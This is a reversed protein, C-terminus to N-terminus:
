FRYGLLIYYRKTTANLATYKSMGNGLEYRIELSIKNYKAGLGFIWGQEYKRTDDIALGEETMETTYFKSEIKKYNTETIAFGNSMGGNVYLFLKGIPYKFRILTNLKLNSYGIETSTIEYYDENRYDEYRGSVKYSTFLLENNISWKGQNRPLVINFFIGGSFNTSQNYNANVLFPFVDSKFKLSTNSVGAIVGIEIKTKERKRQFDVESQTSSYYNQFVKILSKQNYSTNQLDSKVSQDNDFYLRLQAKYKMNETIVRKGDVKRLYKKHKLLEFNADQQVYFNDKGQPDRYFFLSKDGRILTQLFVTDVRLKLTPDEQLRDTQRSSIEANVVGSVYIEDKVGFEKIEFPSYLTPKNEIKNKFRVKQPNNEWNRYDIFGSITDGNEKIVYGPLYNEQAILKQFLILGIFMFGLKLLTKKM